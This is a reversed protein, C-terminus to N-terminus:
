KLTFLGDFEHSDISISDKEVNKPTNFLINGSGKISYNYAAPLKDITLVINARTNEINISKFIGNARVPSDVSDIELRGNFNTINVNGATTDIDLLGSLGNINITAVTSNIELNSIKPVTMNIITKDTIESDILYVNLERDKVSIQRDTKPSKSPTIDITIDKVNSSKINITGNNIIIDIEKVNRAPFSYSEAFLYSSFIFFSIIIFFKKM